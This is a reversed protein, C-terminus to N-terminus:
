RKLYRGAKLVEVWKDYGAKTLHVGDFSLDKPLNDEADAFAAYLDIFGVKEEETIKKLGANINKIHDKKYHGKLKNFSPNVPLISQFFIKTRPSGTRIAYIMRRYNQLVVSDPINRAIDNIGILIFVKRPHGNVVEDIRDLVGFTLDGPIGRNKVYKSNLLEPFNGWFTISNGLFVIDKKSHVAARFLSTQLPSIDPRYTSDWKVSQASTGLALAIGGLGFM